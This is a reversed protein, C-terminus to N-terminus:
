ASATRPSSRLRKSADIIRRKERASLSSWAIVEAPSRLDTISMSLFDAESFGYSDIAVQSVALFQLTVADFVWMPHPNLDFITRLVIERVQLSLDPIGAVITKDREATMHNAGVFIRGEGSPRRSPPLTAQQRAYGM